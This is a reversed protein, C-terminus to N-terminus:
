NHSQSFFCQNYMMYVNKIYQMKNAIPSWSVTM